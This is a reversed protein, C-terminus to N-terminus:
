SPGDWFQAWAPLDDPAIFVETSPAQELEILVHRGDPLAFTVDYATRDPFSRQLEDLLAPADVVVNGDNLTLPAIGLPAPQMPQGGLIPRGNLPALQDLNWALDARERPAVEGSLAAQAARQVARCFAEQRDAALPMLAQGQEDRGTLTGTTQDVEALRHVLSHRIQETDSYASMLSQWLPSDQSIPPCDGAGRDAHTVKTRITMRGAGGLGAQVLAFELLLDLVKWAAGFALPRLDVHVETVGGAYVRVVATGLSLRVANEQLDKVAAHPRTTPLPVLAALAWREFATSEEFELLSGIVASTHLAV